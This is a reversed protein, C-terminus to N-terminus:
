TVSKSMVVIVVGIVSVVLDTVVVIGACVVGPEGICLM